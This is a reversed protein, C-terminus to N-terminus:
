GEVHKRVLLKVRGLERQGTLGLRTGGSVKRVRECLLDIEGVIGNYTKCVEIVSLM